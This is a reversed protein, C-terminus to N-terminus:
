EQLKMELTKYTDQVLQAKENEDNLSIYQMFMTSIDSDMDSFIRVINISEELVKIKEVNQLGLDDSFVEYGSKSIPQGSYTVYESIMQGYKAEEVVFGKGSLIEDSFLVDLLSFALESHNTNRNIGVYKTVYATIGDNMNPLGYFNYNESTNVDITGAPMDGNWIANVFSEDMSASMGSKVFQATTEVIDFFEEETFSLTNEEYNAIDNFVTHFNVMLSNSLAGSVSSESSNLMEDWTKPWELVSAEDYIQGCYNFMLPMLVQGENTKGVQFITQNLGEYNMYQANSIYTDLPLFVDSYLLKEPNEFLMPTEDPMAPNRVGSLIFVDPGAGSMIETKIQSIVVNAEDPESPIVILEAVKGKHLVQWTDILDKAYSELSAEVCVSLAADEEKKCGSLIFMAMLLVALLLIKKM